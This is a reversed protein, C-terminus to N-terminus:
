SRGCKRSWRIWKAVAQNIQDVGQSQEHSATAIEAVLDKIKTSSQAVLSFSEATKSVLSSGDKAKIITKDIL